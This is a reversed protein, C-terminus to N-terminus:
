TRLCQVNKGQADTEGQRDAKPRPLLPPLEKPTRTGAQYSLKLHAQPIFTKSSQSPERFSDNHAGASCNLVCLGSSKDQQLKVNSGFWVDESVQSVTHPKPLLASYCCLYCLSIVGALFTFLM